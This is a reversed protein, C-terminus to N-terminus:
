GERQREYRERFLVELEDIVEKAPQGHVMHKMMFGASENLLADPNLMPYTKRLRKLAAVVSEEAPREIDLPDTPIPAPDPQARSALFAAYDLLSQRQEQGLARFHKLLTREDANM